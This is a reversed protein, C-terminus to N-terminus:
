RAARRRTRQQERAVRLDLSVVRAYSHAHDHPLSSAVDTRDLLLPDIALVTSTLHAKAEYARLVNLM